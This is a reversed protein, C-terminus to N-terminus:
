GLTTPRFYFSKSEYRTLPVAHINDNYGRNPSENYVAGGGISREAATASTMFSFTFLAMINNRKILM